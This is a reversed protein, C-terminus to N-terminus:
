VLSDSTVTANRTEVVTGNVTNVAVVTASEDPPLLITATSQGSDLATRHFTEGSPAIVLLRNVGEDTTANPTLSVKANVQGIAVSGSTSVGAFVVSDTTNMEVAPDAALCGSSTLLAILAIVALLCIWSRRAM